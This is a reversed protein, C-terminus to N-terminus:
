ISSIQALLWPRETLPNTQLILIRLREREEPVNLNAYIIKRTISITNGYIQHHYALVKKRNLYVSFNDLHTELLDYEELKWYIKLLLIKIALGIFLDMLDTGILLKLAESFKDQEFLVKAKIYNVYAKQYSVKLKSGYVEIFQNTWDYAKLRLAATAINKFTSHSLYGKELWIEKNLGFCYIDFVEQVYGETGMNLRKICYNIALLCVYRLEQKPLPINNSLLLNKLERFHHEEEPKALAWYSHYYSRVVVNNDYEPTAVEALIAALLPIKYNIQYLNKHSLATCANRLTSIITFTALDTFIAQLNTQQQRQETGTLSLFAQELSFLDYYYQEGKYTSQRVETQAKQLAKQALQPLSRDKYYDALYFYSKIPSKQAMLYSIYAEFAEVTFSLVHNLRYSNYPTDPYLFQFLKKRKVATPTIKRKKILFDVVKIVDTHQNHIPSNVWRRLGSKEAKTFSRFIKIAKSTYMKYLYFICYFESLSYIINKHNSPVIDVKPLLFLFLSFIFQDGLIATM